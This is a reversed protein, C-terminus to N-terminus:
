VAKAKTTERALFEDISAQPVIVARGIRVVGLKGAAILERTTSLGLSLTEAAETISLAAKPQPINVTVHQEAQQKRVPCGRVFTAM